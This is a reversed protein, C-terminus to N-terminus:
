FPKYDWFVFLRRGNINLTIQFKLINIKYNIESKLRKYVALFCPRIFNQICFLLITAFLTINNIM